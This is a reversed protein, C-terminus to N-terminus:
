RQVAKPFLVRKYILNVEKEQPDNTEFSISFNVLLFFLFVTVIIKMKIMIKYYADSFYMDNINLYVM